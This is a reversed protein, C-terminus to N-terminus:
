VGEPLQGTGDCRPCWRKGRQRGQEWRMAPSLAYVGVAAPSETYPNQEATAGSRGAACGAEYIPDIAQM